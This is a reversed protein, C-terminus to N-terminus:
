VLNIGIGVDLEGGSLDPQNVKVTICRDALYSINLM